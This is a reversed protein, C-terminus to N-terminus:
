PLVATTTFFNHYNGRYRYFLILENGTAHMTFTLAMRSVLISVLIMLSSRGGCAMSYLKAPASSVQKDGMLYTTDAQLARVCSLDCIDASWQRANRSDLPLCCLCAYIACTQSVLSVHTVPAEGLPKLSTPCVAM